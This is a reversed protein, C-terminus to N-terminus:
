VVLDWIDPTQGNSEKEEQNALAIKRRLDREEASNETRYRRILEYTEDPTGSRPLPGIKDGTDGMSKLEEVAAAESERLRLRLDSPNLGKAELSQDYKKILHDLAAM